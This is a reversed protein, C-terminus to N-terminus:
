VREAAVATAQPRPAAPVSRSLEFWFLSGGRPAAEVGVQGGHGEVLRKVTALGLGIGPTGTSGGRVFPDFILDRQGDPIGPGSDEVEVRVVEGRSLVRVSIKRRPSDGMHKIANGILNSLLSNLVGASCAVMDGSSCDVDFASEIEIGAAAAEARRLALVDELV